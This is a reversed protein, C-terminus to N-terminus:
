DEAAAAVRRRGTRVRASWEVVQREYDFGFIGLRVRARALLRLLRKGLRGGPPRYAEGLFFHCREARRRLSEPIWPGGGDLPAAAWGELGSPAPFGPPSEGPGGPHPAHLRIATEFRGDVRRLATAVRRIEALGRGERGPFGAVFSFRGGIGSGRLGRATELIAEAEDGALETEGPVRLHLRVCGSAALARLREPGLRRLVSARGAASWAVAVREALLGRAIAEARGPDAFFDEDQFAVESVRWRSVAEALEGVVREAPLGSWAAAPSSPPGWPRGGSCYDLRREGRSRFHEEVDLLGYDARPRRAADLPPRPPGAVVEGAERWAVGALGRAATAEPLAAALEALTVEGPGVVCADVAGSALCQDAFLTPHPGGWVIALDPNVARAARSIRLADAIPRGTRVTVGLCRVERALGAVRAEPALDFRGDVVVVRRGALASAVHLLGLPMLRHEDKPQYLVVGERLRM